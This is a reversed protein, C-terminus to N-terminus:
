KLLVLKMTKVYDGALIRYLYMGSSLSPLSVAVQHVGAPKEEDVVTSMQRGRIDYIRITVYTAIPLDFRITTSPNFPNPYNQHLSFERPLLANSVTLGTVLVFGRSLSGSHISTTGTASFGVLPEGVSSIVSASAVASRAFGSSFVSWEIEQSYTLRCTVTLLLVLILTLRVM